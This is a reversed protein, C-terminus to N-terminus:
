SMRTIFPPQGEALIAIIGYKYQLMVEDGRIFKALPYLDPDGPSQMIGEETITSEPGFPILPMVYQKEMAERLPLDIFDPNAAFMPLLGCAELIDQADAQLRNLPDPIFQLTM